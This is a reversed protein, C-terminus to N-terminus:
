FMSFHIFYYKCTVRSNELEFYNECSMLSTIEELTKNYGIVGDFKADAIRKADVRELFAVDEHGVVGELVLDLVPAVVIQNQEDYVKPM